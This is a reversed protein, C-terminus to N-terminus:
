TKGPVILVKNQIEGLYSMWHGLQRLLIGLKYPTWGTFFSKLHQLLKKGRSRDQEVPYQSVM